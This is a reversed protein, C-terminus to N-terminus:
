RYQGAFKEVKGINEKTVFGPGSSIHRAGYVPSLGYEEFRAKAKPNAKLEAMVKALDRTNNKKMLALVAVPIYGQLYPQQDIAFAITGDKIGASIEPSLDFTAMFIKGKLGLKEIAKLTPHASSTGLTLVAGTTPNNRLYASVKSEVTPPDDGSDITSKKFDVGLADAFGRCREFSAPNTAYHNV